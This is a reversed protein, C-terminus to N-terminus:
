NWGMGKPWDDRQDSVSDILTELNRLERETYDAREVPDAEALLRYRRESDDSTTMLLHGVIEILVYSPIEDRDFWEVVNQQYKLRSLGPSELLERVRSRWGTLQAESSDPNAEMPDLKVVRYPRDEAPMHEEIIRARCLGQILINFRGDPMREHREIQSLCVVPRIPPNGHYEKKWREGEFCAMAIQGTSDLVDDVMQMYRPEFIHLPVSAHPLLSVGAIPFVPFERKFNIQIMEPM